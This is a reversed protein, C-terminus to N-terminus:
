QAVKRSTFREIYASDKSGAATACQSKGVATGSFSSDFDDQTRYAAVVTEM